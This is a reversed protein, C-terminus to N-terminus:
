FGILAKFTDGSSLSIAVAEWSLDIFSKLDLLREGTTVITPCLLPTQSIAKEGTEFDNTDADPSLVILIQFITVPAHRCLRSPCLLATKLSLKMMFPVPNTLVSTVPFRLSQDRLFDTQTM